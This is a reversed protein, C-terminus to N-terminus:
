RPQNYILGKDKNGQLYRCISKMLSYHSANINNNFGFCKKATFSIYPRTNSELYLMMGIVYAYSNTWDRNDESGNDDTVLPAGVKTHTPLGNCHDMETAELVKHIVVTLCFDFVGNDLMKIYIGLFESVSEGKSHEGNYSPGYGKFYNMVKGIDSQLYEWLIFYDVYVVCIVTKSIFLFPDVKSLLVHSRLFYKM